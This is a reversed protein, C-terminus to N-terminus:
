VGRVPMLRAVDAPAIFGTLARWQGYRPLDYPALGADFDYRRAGAAFRAEKTNKQPPHNIALSLAPRTTPPATVACV